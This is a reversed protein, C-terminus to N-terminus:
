VGTLKNWVHIHERTSFFVKKEVALNWIEQCVLQTDDGLHDMGPMLIVKDKNIFPLYDEEIEQWQDRSTIVFKYWINKKSTLFDKNFRADKIIGSNSLKPSCNIYQIEDLLEQNLITGNTEIETILHAYIKLHSKELFRYFSIIDNANQKLCPEGGTWILHVRGTMLDNETCRTLISALLEESTLTLATTKWVNVSDCVWAAKSADCINSQIGCTLNCGTLRIFISPTGRTIGEGQLSYFIESINM